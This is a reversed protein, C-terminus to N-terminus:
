AYTGSGYAGAGYSGPALEKAIVQEGNLTHSITASPGAIERWVKEADLGFSAFFGTKDSWAISLNEGDVTLGSIAKITQLALRSNSRQGAARVLSKMFAFLRELPELAAADEGASDGIRGCDLTITLKEQLWYAM